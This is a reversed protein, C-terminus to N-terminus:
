AYRVDVIDGEEVIVIVTHPDDTPEQTVYSQYWAEDLVKNKDFDTWDYQWLKVESEKYHLPMKPKSAYLSPWALWIDAYRAVDDPQLIINNLFNLNSYLLMLETPQILFDLVLATYDAKSLEGQWEADLADPLEGRLGTTNDMFFEYQENGDQMGDMCPDLFHYLSHPKNLDRAQNVSEEMCDDVMWTGQTAKFIFADVGLDVFKQLSVVGNKWNWHSLDAIKIM